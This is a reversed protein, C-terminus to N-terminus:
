EGNYYYSGPWNGPNATKLRNAADYTYVTAGENTLNGAADYTYSLTGNVNSIQNTAPAGSGNTAYNITYNPSEGGAGSM